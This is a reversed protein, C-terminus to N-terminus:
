ETLTWYYDGTYGAERFLQRWGEPEFYTVATLVWKMLNDYQEQSFWSDIQIYKFRRSVREIERVAERCDDRDLNHIANISIVLDFSRDPFPLHRASGRVGHGRVDDMAHQLAYGSVDLGVVELGPVALRLDHLLFGKASGVDLVRMGARLGYYEAFRRAVPVWRGDYTYGGYGQTREGDFYERGFQRAVSAQSQDAARNAAIPRTGKPYADLLNVERM